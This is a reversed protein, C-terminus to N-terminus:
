LAMAYFYHEDDDARCALVIQEAGGPRFMFRVGQARSM